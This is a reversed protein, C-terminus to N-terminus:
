FAVRFGAIVIDSPDTLEPAGCAPAAVSAPVSTPTATGAAIASLTDNTTM